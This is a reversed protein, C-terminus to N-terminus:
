NYNNFNSGRRKKWKSSHNFKLIQIIRSCFVTSPMFFLNVKLMSRLYIYYFPVTANNNNNNQTSSTIFNHWECYYSTRREWQTRRKSKIIRVMTNASDSKRCNESRIRTLADGIERQRMRLRLHVKRWNSKGKRETTITIWIQKLNAPIECM